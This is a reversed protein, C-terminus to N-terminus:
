IMLLRIPAEVEQVLLCEVRLQQDLGREQLLIPIPVPHLLPIIVAAAAQDKPPITGHMTISVFWSSILLFLTPYLTYTINECARVHNPGLGIVSPDIDIEKKIADNAITNSNKIDVKSQDSITIEKLQSLFAM